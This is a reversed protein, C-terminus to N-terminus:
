ARTACWARYGESAAIDAFPESTPARTLVEHVIAYAEECRGTALLARVKIHRVGDDWATEGAFLLAREVAELARAHEGGEYRKWAVRSAAWQTAAELFRGTTSYHMISVPSPLDDLFGAVEEGFREEDGMQQLCGLMCYRARLALLRAGAAEAERRAEELLEIAQAPRTGALEDGEVYVALASRARAQDFAVRATWAPAVGAGSALTEAGVIAQIWGVPPPWWSGSACAVGVAADLAWFAAMAARAPEENEPCVAHVAAAAWFAMQDAVHAADGKWIEALSRDHDDASPIDLGPAGDRVMWYSVRSAAHALEAFRWALARLRSAAGERVLESVRRAVEPLRSRTDLWAVGRGLRADVYRQVERTPPLGETWDDARAGCSRAVRAGDAQLGWRRMMSAGARREAPSAACVSDRIMEVRQPTPQWIMQPGHRDLKWAVEEFWLTEPLLRADDRIVAANNSGAVRQAFLRMAAAGVEVGISGYERRLVGLAVLGHSHSAAGIVVTADEALAKALRAPPRLEIRGAERECLLRTATTVDLACVRAAGFRVSELGAAQLARSTAEDDSWAFLFEPELIDLSGVLYAEEESCLMRVGPLARVLEQGLAFDEGWKQSAIAVVLRPAGFGFRLVSTGGAADGEPTWSGDRRIIAAVQELREYLKLATEEDPTVAWHTRVFWDGM